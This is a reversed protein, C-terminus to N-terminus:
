LAFRYATEVSTMRVLSLEEQISPRLGSLYHAVKEKNAEAHRARILLRYFEEIYEQVSKGVEKLGQMKKFLNLDYDVHIFQKKLKDVMRDWRTIKEKGRRNRELQVEQWWIKAHGKMKAKAFKVRDPDRIDEYEFYEELENIWNILEDSKLNRSFVGVDIKPRKGFKTIARFLREEEKKLVEGAAVNTGRRLEEQM